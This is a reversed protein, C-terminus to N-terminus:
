WLTMWCSCATGVVAVNETRIRLSVGKLLLVGVGASGVNLVDGAGTVCGGVVGVVVM